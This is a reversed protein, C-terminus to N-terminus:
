TGTGLWAFPQVPLNRVIGFVILVVIAVRLVTPSFHPVPLGPGGFAAVLRAGIWWALLPVALVFVANLDLAALLHGNLLQHAARTAGCGPCDLGTWAKFPCITPGGAPDVARLVGCGIVLAGTALLPGALPRRTVPAVPLDISM